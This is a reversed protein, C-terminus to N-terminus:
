GEAGSDDWQSFPHGVLNVNYYRPDGTVEAVAWDPIAPSETESRLEVEAIVLGSNAGHFVDVEWEYGQYQRRYRTKRIVSGDCFEALIQRADDVPIDYEFESRRAGVNKGKITLWAREGSLRVRVASLDHTAIFGQCIEEGDRLPGIRDAAVLFKREIELAMRSHKRKLNGWGCRGTGAM